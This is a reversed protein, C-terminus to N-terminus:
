LWYLKVHESQVNLVDGATKISTIEAIIKPNATKMGWSVAVVLIIFRTMSPLHAIHSFLVGCYLICAHDIYLTCGRLSSTFYPFPCTFMRSFYYLIDRNWSKKLVSSIQQLFEAHKGGVSVSLILILRLISNNITPSASCTHLNLYNLDRNAGQKPAHRRARALSRALLPSNM